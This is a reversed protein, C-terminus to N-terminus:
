LSTVGRRARVQKDSFEVSGIYTDPRLMIHELQSKRQYMEEISLTKGAKATSDVNTFVAMDEEQMATSVDAKKSATKKPAAKKAPAKKTSPGAVEADSDSDLQSYCRRASYCEVSVVFDDSDSM